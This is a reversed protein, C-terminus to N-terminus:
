FKKTYIHCYPTGNKKSYYSQHYDEAKWFVTAKTVRTVVEYGKSKLIGILKLATQKQQDNVYFIESRYQEGIDPGQRNLQSPDHTEFFLKTLEEYSVIQPVFVVEVAEAHGTTGTCVEKYTPNSTHGGTFGVTTELVGRRKQMHYETGWFCGSAFIARETKELPVFNLSISNVCHRINKATFKEGEFVHGLHAGCNNCLIEVRIGDADPVRKVANLIEDDFSPWGCNSDFKDESKYLPADCRKCIYYGLAKHDYYAGTFPRETGKHLIVREEEPTLKNYSMEKKEKKDTQSQSQAQFVQIFVFLSILLGIAFWFPKRFLLEKKESKEGPIM